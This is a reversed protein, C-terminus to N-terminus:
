DVRLGAILMPGWARWLNLAVIAEGKDNPHIGDAQNLEARGAVDELLFPLLRVKLTRAIDPYIQRFASTYEAGMNPPAEMQVLFLKAQPKVERIKRLIAEINRRTSDVKLGRLGDNAGTELIVYDAPQTLLWDIRRLAGASTEGSLGANVASILFNISDALREIRAPFASDPSLGLGATLSTGVFLAVPRIGKETKHVVADVLDAPASDKGGVNANKDGNGCASLAALAVGVM